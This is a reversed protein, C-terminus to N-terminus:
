KTIDDEESSVGKTDDKAQGDGKIRREKRPQNSYELVWKSKFSVKDKSRFLKAV